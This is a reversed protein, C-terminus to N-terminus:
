MQLENMCLTHYFWRSQIYVCMGKNHAKFLEVLDNRDHYVACQLPTHGLKNRLNCDSGARLLVHVSQIHGRMCAVHLPTDADRNVKDVECRANVFEQVVEDYGRNCAEHLPYYEYVMAGYPRAGKSLLYKCVKPCNHRVAWYLPTVTFRKGDEFLYHIAENVDHQRREFLTIVDSQKGREIARLLKDYKPDYAM